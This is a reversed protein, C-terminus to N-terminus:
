LFLLILIVVGVVIINLSSIYQTIGEGYKENIRKDFDSLSEQNIIFKRFKKAFERSLLLKVGFAIFFFAVASWFLQIFTM